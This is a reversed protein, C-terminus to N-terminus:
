LALIFSCAYYLQYGDAYPCVNYQSEIVDMAYTCVNTFISKRDCGSRLYMRKYINVKEQM